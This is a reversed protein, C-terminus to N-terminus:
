EIEDLQGDVKIPASSYKAYFKDGKLNASEVTAAFSLIVSMIINIVRM